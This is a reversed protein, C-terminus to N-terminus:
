ERPRMEAERFNFKKLAFLVELNIKKGHKGVSRKKDYRNKKAIIM